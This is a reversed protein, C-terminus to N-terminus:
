VLELLRRGKRRRGRGCETDPAASTAALRARKTRPSRRIPLPLDNHLVVIEEKLIPLARVLGLKRLVTGGLIPIFPTDVPRWIRAPEHDHLCDRRLFVLDVLNFGGRNVLKLGLEATEVVQLRAVANGM